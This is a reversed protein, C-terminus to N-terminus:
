WLIDYTPIELVPRIKINESDYTASDKNNYSVVWWLSNIDLLSGSWYVDGNELIQPNSSEIDSIETYSLIRGTTSTPLGYRESKLIKLYEEIYPYINSNSDYVYPYGNTFHHANPIYKYEGNNTYKQKLENGTNIWYKTESFSTEVPNSEDQLYQENLNYKALLTTKEFDTNIVYFCQKDDNVGACLEDGKSPIGHYSNNAALYLHNFMCTEYEFDQKIIDSSSSYKIYCSDGIKVAMRVNGDTPIMLIGWEPKQGSYDIKDINEGTIYDIIIPESIGLIENDQYKYEAAKVLGKASILGSNDKSEKITNTVRPVIMISIIGIIVIVALLEILTFGKKM